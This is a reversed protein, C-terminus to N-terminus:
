AVDDPGDYGTPFVREGTHLHEIVGYEAGDYRYIGTFRHPTRSNLFRLAAHVGETDLIQGVHSLINPFRM